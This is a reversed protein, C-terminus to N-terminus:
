LAFPVNGSCEDWSGFAKKFQRAADSPAEGQHLLFRQLHDEMARMIRDKLPGVVEDESGAVPPPPVRDLGVIPDLPELCLTGKNMVRDRVFLTLMGSNEPEAPLAEGAGPVVVAHYVDSGLFYVNGPTHAFESTMQIHGNLEGSLCMGGESTRSHARYRGPVLPDVCFTKNVYSGSFGMALFNNRHNHIYTEAVNNWLHLRLQVTKSDHLV